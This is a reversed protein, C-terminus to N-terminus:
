KIETKKYVRYLVPIIIIFLILYLPVIITIYGM